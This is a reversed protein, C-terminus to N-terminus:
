RRELEAIVGVHDSPSDAGPSARGFRTTFVPRLGKAYVYDIRKYLNGEPTGCGPRSAMGTWGEAGQTAKWADVYGAREILDITRVRAPVDPGTCPVQPNWADVKYVNLDGMFLHPGAALSSLFDLAREAQHPVDDENSSGFHTSFMPLTGTCGDDLCVEGGLIWRNSPVDIRHYRVPGSFGYRAFLAVGEEQRSAAQFGLVSNIEAPFACNWAEQIAVAVVSRDRSLRELEAQPLGRGWANMPRAPDHCNLTDHSWATTGFGRIGMGSRINWTAVRLSRGDARTQSPSAPSDQCGAATVLLLAMVVWVTRNLKTV